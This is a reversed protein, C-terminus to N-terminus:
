KQRKAAEEQYKKIFDVFEDKSHDKTLDQDKLTFAFFGICMEDTTAEGFRVEKPPSSPNRPNEASNDYHATVVVKSGKPVALPERYTYTMQWNFDWDLVQVLGRETKDPLILKMTMDKGLLHMHPTVTRIEADFPFEWEAVVEHNKEGPKLVFQEDMALFTHFSKKVPKKSFYIGIESQDTEPKGNPHYHVQLIVDGKAPFFRGVGEPLRKQENGPAWGGLEGQIEVQPGGFCTYGEGPEEADKKRAQGKSEVFGLIHHVVRRNGPKYEVAEVFRNEMVGSPIVFCRYIDEGSAPVSYPAPLKLVLDPTGLKWGSAFTPTSPVDNVNGEPAGAEAWDILKQVDKESLARSHDLAPGFGPTPKWPPMNRAEVVRALDDARKRAQEYTVLSFPGVEGPRHCEQCNNQIISAISNSWTPAVKEEAVPEPLPCGVAPEYTTNLAKGSALAEVADALEHTKPVALRKGRKAFQDDIRGHYALKGKSDYVFAEPTFKAGVLKALKGRRDRVVPYNLGYERAHEAVESTTADPDVCVGILRLVKSNQSVIKTLTPTYENSIPCETSYFVLALAGGEPAKLFISKGDLGDVAAPLSDRAWSPLTAVLAIFCASVLARRLEM